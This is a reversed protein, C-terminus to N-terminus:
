CRTCINNIEITAFLWCYTVCKYCFGARWGSLWLQAAPAADEGMVPSVNIAGLLGWTAWCRAVWIDHEPLQFSVSKLTMSWLKQCAPPFFSFFIFHTSRSTIAAKQESLPQHTPLTCLHGARNPVFFILNEDHKWSQTNYFGGARLGLTQTQMESGTPQMAPLSWWGGSGFQFIGAGLPM